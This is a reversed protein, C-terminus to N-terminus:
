FGSDPLVVSLVEDAPVRISEPLHPRLFDYYEAAAAFNRLSGPMRWEELYPLDPPAGDDDLDAFEVNHVRGADWYFGLGGADRYAAVAPDWETVLCYINLGM